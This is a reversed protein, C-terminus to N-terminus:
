IQCQCDFKRFISWFDSILMMFDRNEYTKYIYKCIHEIFIRLINQPCEPCGPVSPSMTSVNEIHRTYTLVIYIHLINQPCEPCSPVSPSMPSVIKTPITYRYINCKFDRQKQSMLLIKACIPVSVSM